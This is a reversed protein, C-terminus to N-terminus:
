NLSVTWLTDSTFFKFLEKDTIVFVFCRKSKDEYEGLYKCPVLGISSPYLLREQHKIFAKEQNKIKKKPVKVIVLYAFPITTNEFTIEENFAFLEVSVSSSFSSFAGWAFYDTIDCEARNYVKIKRWNNLDIVRIGRENQFSM